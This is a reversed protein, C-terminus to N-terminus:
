KETYFRFETTSQYEEGAKLICDTFNDHNPSDPWYQTELCFAHHPMPAVGRKFLNDGKMFNGTYLQIGPLTTYVKVGRGSKTDFADAAFRLETDSDALVFNDDYCETLLTFERLDFKTGDVPLIKGTPILSEDTETYKDAAIKIKHNKIDGGNFGALNFYAHNTLNVITDADTKASYEIKLTNDAALTYIVKVNLNGPYGEDGDPSFLTFTLKDCDSFEEICANWLRSNYGGAGGHLHNEGDNTGLVYEKGNLTFRGKAIRNAYRGILAGQCQDNILYGELTDFGCIVDAFDGNKDPMFIKSLAGGYEIATISAGNENTLTYSYVPTGDPMKGFLNKATM